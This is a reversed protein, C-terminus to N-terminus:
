GHRGEQSRIRERVAEGEDSLLYALTTEPVLEDLGALDNRGLAARVRSASIWDAGAKKREIEVPEIGWPPLVRRMADNYCRTTACYPEDGFFRRKVHFFPAIRGAFVLLDLEMQIAAVPDCEKLFYAPFTIASVAYHSSDLVLVNTLDKTGERVLRFRAEFPFASRDERVVFLYLTGVRKAAEEALYRHGKTFPNCNMVAAGNEGERVLPRHAELYKSLHNGYELLAVRGHNALLTFNLSEFSTANEPRTFVFLCDHGAGLGLRVLESVLEGLLGGSQRSPEIALMKLVNRERAGVAVLEPGDFVGVLNDFGPEFALGQKEIFARAKGRDGSSLLQAVM